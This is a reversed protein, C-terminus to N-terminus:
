GVFITRMRSISEKRRAAVRSHNGPRGKGAKSALPSEGVNVGPDDHQLSIDITVRFLYRM